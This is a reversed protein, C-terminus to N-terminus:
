KRNSGVLRHSTGLLGFVGVGRLLRGPLDAGFLALTHYIVEISRDAVFLLFKICVIEDVIVEPRNHSMQLYTGRM